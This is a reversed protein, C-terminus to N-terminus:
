LWGRRWYAFIALYEQLIGRVQELTAGRTHDYFSEGVRADPHGHVGAGAEGVGEVRPAHPVAFERAPDTAM